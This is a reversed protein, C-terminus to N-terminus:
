SKIWLKKEMMRKHRPSMKALTQRIHAAQDAEGDGGYRRATRSRRGTM